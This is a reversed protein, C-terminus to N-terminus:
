LHLKTAAIVNQSIDKIFAMLADKDLVKLDGQYEKSETIYCDLDELVMKMDGTKIEPIKIESVISEDYDPIALDYEKMLDNSINTYDGYLYDDSFVKLM